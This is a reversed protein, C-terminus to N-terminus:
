ALEDLLARMEDVEARQTAIVQESLALAAPDAGAELHAEAMELAGEHHLAMGELFLVAARDADADRIAALDEESQMGAMGHDGHDAMDGDAGWAELWQEMQAIEPGQAARIREALDAVRADLGDHALVLESMEVAQEHHAAMGTAYAVDADNWTAGAGDGASPRMGHDGHDAAAGGTSCGALGLGVALAAALPVLATTTRM